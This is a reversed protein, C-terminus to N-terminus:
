KILDGYAAQAFIVIALWLIFFLVPKLIKPNLMKSKPMHINMGRLMGRGYDNYGFKPCKDPPLFALVEPLDSRGAKQLNWRIAKSSRHKIAMPADATTCLIIPATVIIVLTCVLKV